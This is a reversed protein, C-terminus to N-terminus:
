SRHNRYGLLGVENNVERNNIIYDTKHESDLFFQIKKIAVGKIHITSGMISYEDIECVYRVIDIMRRCDVNRAGRPGRYHGEELSGDLLFLIWLYGSHNFHRQYFLEFTSENFAEQFEKQKQEEENQRQKEFSAIKQIDQANPLRYGSFSIAPYRTLKCLEPNGDPNILIMEDCKCPQYIINTITELFTWLLGVLFLNIMLGAGPFIFFCAIFVAQEIGKPELLYFFILTPLVAMGILGEKSVLEFRSIYRHIEQIKRNEFHRNTLKPHQV